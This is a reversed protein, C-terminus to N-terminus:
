HQVWAHMCMTPFAKPFEVISDVVLNDNCFLYQLPGPAEALVQIDCQYTDFIM